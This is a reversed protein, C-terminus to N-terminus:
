WWAVAQGPVLILEAARAGPHGRGAEANLAFSFARCDVRSAMRPRSSLWSVVLPM